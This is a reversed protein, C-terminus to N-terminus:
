QRDGPLSRSGNGPRMPKQLCGVARHGDKGCHFCHTCDPRRQEICKNCGFPRERNNDTKNKRPRSTQESKLPQRSQQMTEVLCTLKEVKETLQQIIDTTPQKLTKEQKAASPQAANVEVQASHVKAPKQRTASGLRRQRENEDSIVKKMQKLIIEDAVNSDALLPKLERRVNEHQPGLGQYVTHLFVDQITHASYKVETDTHKSTLLIKQKLGIVRYLFQQPTENDKQKTCMLEQFLEMNSQEGLHSHLFVKLEEVTLDDKIILMDKFNGPKIVKLVARVIEADSFQEKLGEEIQRCVNNYSIDSGQDGIQGGQIKFERRHLYSLERLSVVKDSNMPSNHESNNVNNTMERGEPIIHAEAPSQPASQQTSTPVYQRIKQSLEEYSALIQQMETDPTSMPTTAVPNDTKVKVVEDIERVPDVDVNTPNVEDNVQPLVFGTVHVQSDSVNGQITVDVVDKLELLHAMGADESELLHSSNMFSCIYEFCAEEDGSKLRSQDVGPAPSLSKAIQFLEDASLALLNKKIAWVLTKREGDAM